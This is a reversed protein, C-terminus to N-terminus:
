SLRMYVAPIAANGATTHTPSDWTPEQVASSPWHLTAAHVRSSGGAAGAGALKACNM